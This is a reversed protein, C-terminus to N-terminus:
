MNRLQILTTSSRRVYADNTVEVQEDEIGGTQGLNFGSIPSSSRAVLTYRVASAMRPDCLTPDDISNGAAGCVVGNNLVLAVQLDEINEAVVQWVPPEGPPSLSAMLRPTTPATTNDVRFVTMRNSVRAVATPFTLAQICTDLGIPMNNCRSQGPNHQLKGAEIHTVLRLCSFRNAPNANRSIVGFFDNVAFRSVDNVELNAGDDGSALVMVNQQDFGVVRIWDPDNIETDAPTSDFTTKPDTYVNSNSFQVAFYSVTGTCTNITLTSGELGAGAGRVVRGIVDDALRLTQQVEAVQQQRIGQSTYASYMQFSGGILLGALVLSIMLEAISFGM